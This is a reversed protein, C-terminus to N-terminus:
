PHRGYLMLAVMVEGALLLGRMPDASLSSDADDDGDSKSGIM